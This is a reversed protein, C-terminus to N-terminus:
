KLKNSLKQTPINKKLKQGNHYIVEIWKKKEKRKDIEM